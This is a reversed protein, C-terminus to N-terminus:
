CFSTFDEVGPGLTAPGGLLVIDVPNLRVIEDAAVVPVCEGRVLLVPADVRAAVPGGSLADPFVAGSAVFATESGEFVAESVAAAVEFRDAGSFRIVDPVVGRLARELAPSVSNPGGTISISEAGLRSLLQTTVGDLRTGSGPVLLIAGQEHAAAPGASLADPFNEGTAVFVSSAGGGACGTGSPSGCFASAVVRRSVEYRDAGGIREIAPTLSALQRYVSESVSAQGGVVVIREPELRVLEDRTSEPLTDRSVLLLAGNRHAAAPGASLADPYKEGSAVYVVPIGPDFVSSVANAAVEYRDAGGIRFVSYTIPELQADIGPTVAGAEVHVLEAESAYPTNDYYQTRVPDGSAQYASVFRVRYDGDPLAGIWYDTDVDMWLRYDVWSGTPADWRSATVTVFGYGGGPMRVAGSIAGGQVVEGDVGTLVDGDDLTVTPGTTEQWNHEIDRADPPGRYGIEYTGPDLNVAYHGEADTFGSVAAEGDTGALHFDVLVQDAPVPEGGPGRTTITGSARTVPLLDVDVGTRQEGPTLLLPRAEQERTTGPWWTPQFPQDTALIALTLRGPALGHVTYAGTTPDYEYDGHRFSDTELDHVVPEMRALPAGSGTLVGSVSSSPVLRPDITVNEGARVTFVIPVDHRLADTGNYYEAWIRYEGPYLSFEFPQGPGGPVFESVSPYDDFGRRIDVEIGGTTFVAGPALQVVGSVTGNEDGEDARAGGPSVFAAQLAAAVALVVAGALLRRRLGPARRLLATFTM